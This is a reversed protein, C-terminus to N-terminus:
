TKEKNCVKIADKAKKDESGDDILYSYIEARLRVFKTVIKGGLEGKMLGFVKKNKGKPLRRGLEFNSTDLRNEVDKAIDKYIDDTKIDEIFSDRDMVMYFTDTNPTIRIRMKECESQTCFSVEYRETNLGFAPFHPGSYIQINVSKVLHM